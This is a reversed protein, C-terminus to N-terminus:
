KKGAKLVVEVEGTGELKTFWSTRHREDAILVDRLVIYKLRGPSSLKAGSNDMAKIAMTQVVISAVGKKTITTTNAVSFEPPEEVISKDYSISWCRGQRDYFIVARLAVEVSFTRVSIPRPLPNRLKLYVTAADKNVLELKTIQMELHVLQTLDSDGQAIARNAQMSTVVALTILEVCLCRVFRM